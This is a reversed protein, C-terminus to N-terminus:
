TVHKQAFAILIRYADLAIKQNNKQKYIIQTEAFKSAFEKKFEKKRDRPMYDIFDLFAIISSFFRDTNADQHFTDRHSCHNVTFGLTQLLEKLQKRPNISNRLPWTYKNLDKIHPAFRVDYILNELVNFINHSSVFLVLMSGNPRLMRYINEFAQKIDNCWHLTHFSLVLDFESVYKTPLNKTQIDLVDFELRKEKIYKKKAYDIMSESIDTGIVVANPNLAPLIVDKTVDGPGCGIDICKGSINKLYENFEDTIAFAKERQSSNSAIYKLPNYSRKIIDNNITMMM